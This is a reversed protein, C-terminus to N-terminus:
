AEIQNFRSLALMATSYAYPVSTWLPFFGDVTNYGHFDQPTPVGYHKVQMLKNYEAPPIHGQAAVVDGRTMNVKTGPVVTGNLMEFLNAPYLTPFTNFGKMSGSFFANWPEYQGSTAHKHLWEASGAVVEKVVDPVGAKWSSKKTSKDYDTWTYVLANIAMATTFIRDEGRNLPKGFQTLDGDGLFDDFYFTEKEVPKAQSLIYTTMAHNTASKLTEYVTAMVQVPLPGTKMAEEMIAVTRTVFWDFEIQSPYYLLALDPRSSINTNIEYAILASTNQYIQAIEPDELVKPSVLGSLVASTIGFVTNACVTIDVNNVNFPMQVGKKSETRLEEINQIWTTVLALDQGNEAAADLFYRMYYYSRPDIYNVVPDKSFPRYAYKKLDDFVSTVNPNLENWLSWTKPFEDKMQFLLSGLGINVFTDDFDPPIHFAQLYMDKSDVIEKVYKAMDGLGVLKMAEMTLNLPLKSVMDFAAVLNVPASQWYNVSKDLSQPWFTMASNAYPKNKNIHVRFSDVAMLLHEESPKPANGFHYAELLSSTVWATAFMNNDFLNMLRRAEAFEPKGHFYLKVDSRFVGKKRYLEFPLKLPVDEKTQEAITLDFLKQIFESPIAQQGPKELVQHGFSSGLTVILLVLFVAAM